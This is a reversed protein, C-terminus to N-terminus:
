GVPINADRAALFAKELESLNSDEGFRDLSESAQRATEEKLIAYGLQLYNRMDAFRSDLSESPTADPNKVFRAVASFQKYFHVLWAQLPTIGCFAATEKFNSLVDTNERTYDPRKAAVISDAFSNLDNIYTNFITQTM